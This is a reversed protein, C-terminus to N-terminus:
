KKIFNFIGIRVAAMSRVCEGQSIMREVSVRTLKTSQERWRYYRSTRADPRAELPISFMLFSVCAVAPDAVFAFVPCVILPWTACNLYLVTVFSWGPENM